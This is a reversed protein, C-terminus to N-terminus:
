PVRWRTRSGARVSMDEGVVVQANTGDLKESVVCDRNLRYIKPFESFEEETM